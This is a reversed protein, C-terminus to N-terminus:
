LFPRNSKTHFCHKENSSQNIATRDTHVVVAHMANCPCYRMFARACVCVCVCLQQPTKGVVVV